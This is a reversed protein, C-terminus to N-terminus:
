TATRVLPLLSEIAGSAAALVLSRVTPRIVFWIPKAPLPVCSDAVDDFLMAVADIAWQKKAAGDAPISEATDIVVHLLAVALEGFESVTLGGKAKTKAIVIFARIKQELTTPDQAAAMIAAASIDAM